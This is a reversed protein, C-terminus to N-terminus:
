AGQQYATGRLVRTGKRNNCASHVAQVNSSTLLGGNSVPVICDREPPADESFPKGCLACLHGQNEIIQQWQQATLNHGSKRIARQKHAARTAVAAIHEPNREKRVYYYKALRSRNQKGWISRTDMQCQKCWSQEPWFDNQADKIELCHPCRKVGDPLVENRKAIGLRTAKTRVAEPTKGIAAAVYETSAVPYFAHLYEIQDQAWHKDGKKSM